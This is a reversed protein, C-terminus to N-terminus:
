EFIWEIMNENDDSTAADAEPITYRLKIVKCYGKNTPYYGEFCGSVCGVGSQIYEGECSGCNGIPSCDPLSSQSFPTGNIVVSSNIGVYQLGSARYFALNNIEQINPLDVSKLKKDGYFARDGLYTINELGIVTELNELRKFARSGIGTVGNEIVVTTIDKNIWPTTALNGEEVNDYDGMKGEGSVTLTKSAEDYTCQVSDSYVGYTAPGCNWTEAFSECTFCIVSGLMLVIKKM